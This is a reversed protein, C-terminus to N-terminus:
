AWIPPLAGRGTLATYDRLVNAPSREAGGIFVYYNLEGGASGFTYRAPDTKGMDFYSRWTNDFFVGYSRGDNLAIFFPITQYLPDLGPPYNGADTNWNVIAQEVRSMPMTKEGFGYYLEFDSRRKSTEVAGTAPDFAMPRAPDDAVVLRGQADYVAILLNPRKQVVVRAGNTARLETRDAADDVSFKVVPRTGAEVAYSFDVAFPVHPSMRVRVIDPTVFSVRVEAGSATSLTLGDSTQASQGVEGLTQWAAHAPFAVWTLLCVVIALYRLNRSRM